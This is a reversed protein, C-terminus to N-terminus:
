IKKWLKQEGRGINPIAKDVKSITKSNNTDRIVKRKNKVVLFDEKLNHMM